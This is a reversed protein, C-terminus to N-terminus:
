IPAHILDHVLIMSIGLYITVNFKYYDSNLASDFSEGNEHTILSDLHFLLCKVLSPILSGSTVLVNVRQHKANTSDTSTNGYATSSVVDEKEGSCEEM